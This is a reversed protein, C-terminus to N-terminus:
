AGPELTRLTLLTSMQEVAIQIRPDANARASYALTQATTSHGVILRVVDPTVGANLYLDVASHRLDHLRVDKEIGSRKLFARWDASDQSPDHPRGDPRAFVFQHIENSAIHNDIVSRLPELLPVVRWGDASKPRTLYLGGTVHKYEYDAPVNITRKPCERARDKGCPKKCGHAYAIRQLQWSLDIADGLREAELGIVEGRRAGTLLATAWRAGDPQRKMFNFLRRAEDLTLAELKAREKKPARTRKCPNTMIIGDAVADALASSLIRHGNLAYTSSQGADLMVRHLTKVDVPSLRAIRKKGLTPIIWQRSVSRYNTMTNPAVHRAKEDLWRDLYKELTPSSSPLDGNERLEKLKDQHWSKVADKSKGRKVLRRRKGDISPLEIRSEWLGTAKNQLFSGNGKATGRKKKATQSM